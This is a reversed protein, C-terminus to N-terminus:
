RVLTIPVPRLNMITQFAEVLRDQREELTGVCWKFGDASDGASSPFNTGGIASIKQLLNVSSTQSSSASEFIGGFALCHITVPKGPAGFGPRNQNPAYPTIGTGTVANGSKDNCMNQITQLLTQESYSASSLPQRPQIRYYSDYNSGSTFGNGPTSGQNAMGDTEYVILRQAGIRGRGGVGPSSSDDLGKLVSSASLQNYALMFGYSSSTNSTWDGFARPTQSGNADWPRVDNQSSNPPIWLANIMPQVDNTLSFQAVNFAGTGSAGNTYLPRSFLIMSVLDNPHNNQIHQLAQGIGIKMPYMSIDHATGPLIGTDSMFQVMTM